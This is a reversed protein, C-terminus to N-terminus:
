LIQEKLDKINKGEGREKVHKNKVKHGEELMM